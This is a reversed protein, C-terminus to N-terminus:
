ACDPLRCFLHFYVRVLANSFKQAWMEVDHKDDPLALLTNRMQLVGNLALKYIANVMPHSPTRNLTLTPSPQPLYPDSDSFINDGLDDNDIPRAREGGEVMSDSYSFARSPSRCVERSDIPASAAPASLSWACAQALVNEPPM